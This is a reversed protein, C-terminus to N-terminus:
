KPQLPVVFKQLNCIFLTIKKNKKDSIRVKAASIFLNITEM